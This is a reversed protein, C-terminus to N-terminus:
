LISFSPNRENDSQVSYKVARVSSLWATGTSLKIKFICLYNLLAILTTPLIERTNDFQVVHGVM